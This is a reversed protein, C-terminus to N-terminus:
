AIDLKPLKMFATPIPPPPTFERSYKRPVRHPPEHRAMFVSAFDISAEEASSFIKIPFDIVREM